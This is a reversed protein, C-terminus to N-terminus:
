ARRQRRQVIRYAVYAPLLIMSAACLFVIWSVKEKVTKATREQAFLENLGFIDYFSM